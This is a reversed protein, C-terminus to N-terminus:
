VLILLYDWEGMGTFTREVTPEVSMEEFSLFQTLTIPLRCLDASVDSSPEADPPM